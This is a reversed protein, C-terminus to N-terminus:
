ADTDGLGWLGLTAIAEIRDRPTALPDDAVRERAAIRALWRAMEPPIGNVADVIESGASM